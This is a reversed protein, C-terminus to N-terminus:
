IRITNGVFKGGQDARSVNIFVMLFCEFGPLVKTKYFSRGLVSVIIQTVYEYVLNFSKTIAQTAGPRGLSGRSGGPSGQDVGPGGSARPVGGSAGRPGRPSGM